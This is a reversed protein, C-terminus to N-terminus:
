TLAALYSIRDWSETPRLHIYTLTLSSVMSVEDVILLKLGRLTARLTVLQDQIIPNYNAPQGHEIPLSLLRHITTGGVNFAILGTPATVVVPVLKATSCSNSVMRALIDIIRSKGTGGQGSVILRIPEDSSGLKNLVTDVVTKQDSNLSNYCELLYESSCCQQIIAHTETVEQMACQLHDVACGSLAGEADDVTELDLENTQQKIAEETTKEQESLQVNAEHYSVMDPLTHKLLEYVESHENGNIAFDTENRWPKFLKLLYYFYLEKNETSQNPNVVQHTVIYPQGHRRRLFLNLNRLKLRDKRNSDSQDKEYWSLFDYLCCSELEEPRNPYIDLVWHVHFIDNSQPDIEILRKIEATSKLVRKAKDAPQLDAFILQRSMSFLKLGLLRDAAENASVQRSKISQLLYSMANAGLTKTTSFIDHWM